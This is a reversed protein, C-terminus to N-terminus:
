ELDGEEGVLWVIVIDPDDTLFQIKMPEPQRAQKPRSGRAIVPKPQAAPVPPAPAAAPVPAVVVNAPPTARPMLWAAGFVLIVGAAAALVWAWRRGSAAHIRALTRDRVAAYTEADAEEQRLSRLAEEMSLWERENM